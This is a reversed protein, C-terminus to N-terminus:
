EARLAEIPDLRAAELAPAVGAALGVGLAVLLAATVIPLPTYTELGPVARALLAAGGAGALLGAAGGAGATLAAECLYWALIQARTAGLAKVLGIEQTRERVVIWLITFIGIAGVLLSIAAIATVTATLVNMINNVMQLADKQSIITVDEVGRHREILLRRAREAVRESEEVSAALLDIEALESRNFMRMADAVPIYAADDMDLGLYQGKPEMIGVVRFRTTGIRVIEGLAGAGGFLHQKLGPALVVVPAGRDWDVDPLFSGSALRMSWVRPVQATVGFIMVRRGRGGGEVLATGYTFATAEVVGAMRRLARADDITLKRASGGIAGPAGRTEVRGPNVSVLTTGFSSVQDHIFRRTGEGISSMLVVAAVGVAIALASLGYRMRHAGLAEASLGFLDALSM